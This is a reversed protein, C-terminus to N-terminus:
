KSELDFVERPKIKVRNTVRIGSSIIIVIMFFWIVNTDRFISAETINHILPIIIGATLYPSKVNQLATFFILFIFFCGIVGFQLLLQLYGSHASNIFKLFSYDDDLIFPIVGVEFYSGYGYGLAMKNFFALDYYLADWIVGRGTLSEPDLYMAIHTYDNLYYSIGPVFIFATFLLTSLLISFANIKFHSLRVIIFYTVVLTISTKSQTFLLLVFLIVLLLNLKISKINFTKMLIHSLTILVALNVGLLNKGKTFGALKMDTSFAVGTVFTFAILGICIFIAWKLTAEIHKHYLAFSFSMALSSCFIFQFIARKVTFSPYNSWGASMLAVSCLIMLLLIKNKILSRIPHICDTFLYRYSFFLFLGVWFVQKFTNSGSLNENVVDLELEMLSIKTSLDPSLAGLCFLLMLLFGNKELWIILQM